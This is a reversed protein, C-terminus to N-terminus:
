YSFRWSLALKTKELSSFLDNVDPLFTLEILAIPTKWEISIESEIKLEEMVDAETYYNNRSRLRVMAELFIDDSLYKGLFLTTNDLYRGFTSTSEVQTVTDEKLVKERVLSQFMQTRITFLDLKFIEKVRDEFTRLLGFQGLLIDGTLLLTSTLNINQGGFEAIVNEGLMALIETDPLPPESEFRPSFRSFPNNDAVLYIKVDEGDSTVERIEALVSLHPDFKNENENFSIMGDKLYFNRSFYYVQGGKIRVDGKVSYTERFGDYRISVREGTEAFGRLVPFEKTPWLFEMQRGTTVNLDVLLSFERGIGNTEEKEEGGEGGLTIRCNSIEVSGKLSLGQFDGTIHLTGAGYGDIWIYDIFTDTIHVKKKEVTKVFIEYEMPIWHDIAFTARANAEGNGVQLREKEIFFTKGNFHLTADFEGIKEPVPPIKAQCNKVFLTGFFDPDNLPGSIDLAGRAIGKKIRFYPISFLTNLAEFDLLVDDLRAQLTNGKLTGRASLSIPLPHSLSFNFEENNILSGVIAYDPWRYFSLERETKKFRIEWGPFSNKGKFINSLSITGEMKQQLLGELMEEKSSVETVGNIDILGGIPEGQFRGSYESSFHFQGNSLLLEGSGNRFNNTLYNVSLQNITLRENTISFSSEFTFPDSYLRGREMKLNANLNLNPYSGSFSAFGSVAGEIPSDVLRTLPAQTLIVTGEMKENQLAIHAEYQENGTLNNLQVWGEGEYSNSLDLKLEGNGILTSISDEYALRYIEGREATVRASLSLKNQKGTFLPLNSLSSEEILIEWHERNLYNGEINLSIYTLTDKFPLPMKDIKFRFFFKSGIKLAVVNLDYDGQVVVGEGPLFFGEFQYPTNDAYLEAQFNLAKGFNYMGTISGSVRHSDWSVEFEDIELERNNGWTSIRIYNNKNNKDTIKMYPSAFSFDKFNSTLFIESSLEVRELLQYPIIDQSINALTYIKDPSVNELDVALKLFLEPKFHISGEARISGPKNEDSVPERLSTSFLFDINTRHFLLSLDLDTFEAEGISMERGTISLYGNKRELGFEGNVREGNLYKVDNLAIKGAPLFDKLNVDGSFEINGSESTLSLEPLIIYDRNGSLRTFLQVKESVQKNDILARMTASYTYYKERLNYVLEGEGKLVTNLWHGYSKIDKGLSFYHDPVFNDMAFHVSFKESEVDFTLKFDLPAKDEIKRVIWQNDRYSVLFTQKNLSIVNSNFQNFSIKLDTWEINSGVKGSVRIGTKLERIGALANHTSFDARTEGRLQINTTKGNSNLSFFLREIKFNGRNFQVNISLNKGSLKVDGSVERGFALKRFLEILDEDHETNFSFFSNEISLEEFAEAPNSSFLKLINFYVRIQKIRILEKRSDGKKYIILDRFELFRFISPSINEYSIKRDIKQQLYNVVETKIIEIRRNVEKQIPSFILATIVILLLLVFVQITNIRIRKEIM